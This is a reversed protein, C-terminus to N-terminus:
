ICMYLQNNMQKTEQLKYQILQSVILDNAEVSTKFSSIKCYSAKKPKMPSLCWAKLSAPMMYKSIRDPSLDVICILM